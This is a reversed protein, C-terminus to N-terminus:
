FIEIIQVMALGLLIIFIAPFVFYVLPILIKVPAKM